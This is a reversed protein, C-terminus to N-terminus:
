DDGLPTRRRYRLRLSLLEVVLSFSMAFYIYGKNIHQGMSEAVLMVGILILFSLALVKMSPYADIFRSIRGAFVMMIIIAIVVAIIMVQIHKAMGVATIVSDLSFVLDLVAIQFVIAGFSAVKKRRIDLEDHHPDELTEVIEHTAKALLFLGGIGLILDRASVAHEFVTFVPKTLGMIWTVGVLLAVRLILALSLGIKRAKPRQEEPLKNTVISLFVINDIGLVVELATLTLLAVWTSPESFLAIWVQPDLYTGVDMQAKACVVALAM